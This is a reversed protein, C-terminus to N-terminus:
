KRRRFALVSGVVGSVLLLVTSPEPVTTLEMANLYGLSLPAAGKYAIYLTNGTQPTLGALTAVKDQNWFGEGGIVLSTSAVPTTFTNDTYATYNTTNLNIDPGGNYQHSGFFTLTYKKSPDLNGITMKGNTYFDFAAEKVGLDGLAAANITTLPLYQLFPPPDTPGAPGNYSDNGAASVFGFNTSTTNGNIDLLNSYFCCSSVSNWSHGNPDPNTVSVSRFDTGGPIPQSDRGLDFLIKQASASAVLGVVLVIALSVSALKGFGLNVKM